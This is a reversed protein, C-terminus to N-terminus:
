ETVKKQRPCMTTLQKLRTWSKAVRYGIAQGVSRDMPNEPFFVPTPQWVMRWPIKEVWPHMDQMVPLNKVM